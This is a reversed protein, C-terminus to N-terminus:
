LDVIHWDFHHEMMSTLYFFALSPISWGRITYHACNNCAIGLSIWLGFDLRKNCLSGERVISVITAFHLWHPEGYFKFYSVGPSLDLMMDLFM